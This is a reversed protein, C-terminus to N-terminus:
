IWLEQEEAEVEVKGLERNCFCDVGDKVIKAIDENYCVFNEPHEIKITVAFKFSQM